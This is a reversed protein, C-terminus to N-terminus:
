SIELLSHASYPSGTKGVLATLNPNGGLYSDNYGKQDMGLRHHHVHLHTVETVRM